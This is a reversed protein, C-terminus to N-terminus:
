MCQGAVEPAKEGSCSLQWTEGVTEGVSPAIFLTNIYFIVDASMNQLVATNTLSYSHRSIIQMLYTKNSVLLLSHKGDGPSPATAM